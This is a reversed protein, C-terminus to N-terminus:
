KFNYPTQGVYWRNRAYKREIYPRQYFSRTYRWSGVYSLDYPPRKRLIRERKRVKNWTLTNLRRYGQENTYFSAPYM